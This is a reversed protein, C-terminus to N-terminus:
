KRQFYSAIGNGEKRKKKTRPQDSTQKRKSPGGGIIVKDQHALRQAFHFDEHEAKVTELKAMQTDLNEDPSVEPEFVRGCTPCRYSLKQLADTPMKNLELSSIGIPDRGFFSEIGRQGQELAEVGSFALSIHYIKMEPTNPNAAREADSCHLERWLKTAASMIVDSTLDRVFPFPAQKSRPAPEGASNILM